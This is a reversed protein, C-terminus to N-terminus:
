RARSRVAQDPAPRVQALAMGLLLLAIGAAQRPGLYEGLIPMAFLATFVLGSSSLISAEYSRLTRLVHNFLTLGIAIGVLGSAAIIAWSRARLGEPWGDISLGALLLPAGGIWLALTSFVDNSLRGGTLLPLKRALNNTTALGLVGVALWAVGVREDPPPLEVFFVRVGLVALLAGLLQVRSPREKMVAVSIGMTALGVFSMLFTHTNVPLRELSLLLAFRVVSFNLLGICALLAWARPGLGAPIRRGRLGFTYASLLLGGIGVQLWVFRFPSVDRLALKALVAVLASGVLMAQLQAIAVLRRSM